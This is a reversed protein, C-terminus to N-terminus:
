DGLDVDVSAHTRKCRLNWYTVATDMQRSGGAQCRCRTCRVIYWALPPAIALENVMEAEGCCFPCRKLNTM